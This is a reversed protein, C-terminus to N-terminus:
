NLDITPSWAFFGLFASLIGVAMLMYNVGVPLPSASGYFRFQIDTQQSHSDCIDTSDSSVSSSCSSFGSCSLTTGGCGRFEITQSDALFFAFWRKM